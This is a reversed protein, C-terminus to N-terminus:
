DGAYIVVKVTIVDLNVVFCAHPTQLVESKCLVLKMHTYMYYTNPPLKNVKYVNGLHAKCQYRQYRQSLYGWSLM